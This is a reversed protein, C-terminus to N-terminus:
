TTTGEEERALVRSMFAEEESIAGSNMMQKVIQQLADLKDNAQANLLVCERGLLETIRM